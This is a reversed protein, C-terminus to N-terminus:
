KLKCLIVQTAQKKNSIFHDLIDFKTEIYNKFEEMNWERVHSSNSPPGNHETNYMLSRDPTSLLILKPECNAILDLLIDPNPIHEIVDSSIILDYGKKSEFNDSWDKNPYKNKLFEVTKPIDIGLTKYNHFHKMLKYGSGTGIDLVSQFNNDKFVKEAFEYVEKQWQDTLETDDFDKNNLNHVYSEKIHYTKM